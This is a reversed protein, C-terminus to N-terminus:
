ESNGDRTLCSLLFTHPTFWGELTVGGSGADGANIVQGLSHLTNYVSFSCCVIPFLINRLM